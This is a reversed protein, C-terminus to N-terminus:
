MFCSQAHDHAVQAQVVYDHRACALIFHSKEEATFFNINSAWKM